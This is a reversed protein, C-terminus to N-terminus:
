SCWEEFSLNRDAYPRNLYAWREPTLDNPEHPEIAIVVDSSHLEETNHANTM